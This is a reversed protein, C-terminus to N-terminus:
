KPMRGFFKRLCRHFKHISEVPDAYLFICEGSVTKMGLDECLKEGEPSNAGQQLWINQIKERAADRIVELSKAPPVVILVGEPKEPLAGLGAYCRDGEVMDAAPNVAFVKKGRKKLERYIMNGFKGPDRSVGVVAISKLTIFEDITQRSNQM